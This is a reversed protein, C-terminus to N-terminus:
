EESQHHHKSASTVLLYPAKEGGTRRLQRHSEFHDTIAAAAERSNVFFLTEGKRVIDGVRVNLRLVQGSVPPIIRAMQDENFQIKGTATLLTPMPNESLEEIEINKMMLGDLKVVNSAIATTDRSEASTGNQAKSHAVSSPTKASCGFTLLLLVALLSAGCANSTM